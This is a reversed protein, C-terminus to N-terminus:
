DCWDPQVGLHKLPEKRQEFLQAIWGTMGEIQECKELKLKNKEGNVRTDKNKMELCNQRATTM